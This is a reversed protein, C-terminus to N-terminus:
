ADKLKETSGNLQLSQRSQPLVPRTSASKPLSQGMEAMAWGFKSHRVVGGVPAASNVDSNSDLCISNSRVSTGAAVVM